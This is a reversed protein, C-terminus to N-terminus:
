LTFFLLDTQAALPLVGTWWVSPTREDDPFPLLFRCRLYPVSHSCLFSRSAQGIRIFLFYGLPLETARQSRRIGDIGAKGDM